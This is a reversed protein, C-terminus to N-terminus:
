LTTFSNSYKGNKGDTNIIVPVNENQVVNNSDVNNNNEVTNDAIANQDNNFVDTDQANITTTSGVFSFSPVFTINDGRSSSFFSPPTLLPLSPLSLLGLVSALGLLAPVLALLAPLPTGMPIVSLQRRCNHCM